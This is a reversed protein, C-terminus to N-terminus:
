DEGHSYWDDVGCCWKQVTYITGLTCVLVAEWLFEESCRITANEAVTIVDFGNSWIAGVRLEQSSVKFASICSEVRKDLHIYVTTHHTYDNIFVIFHPGGSHSKTNFPGCTHSHVLKFPTTTWLVPVQIIKRKHKALICVNGIDSAVKGNVLSKMSIHNLHSLCKHWLHSEGTSLLAFANWHDSHHSHIPEVQFIQRNWSRTMPMVNSNM